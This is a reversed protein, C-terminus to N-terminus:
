LFKGRLKLNVPTEDGEDKNSSQYNRTKENILTESINCFSVYRPNYYRQNTSINEEDLVLLKPKELKAGDLAAAGANPKLAWVCAAGTEKPVLGAVGIDLEAGAKPADPEFKPNKPVIGARPLTPSEGGARPDKPLEGGNVQMSGEAGAKPLNELAEVETYPLGM